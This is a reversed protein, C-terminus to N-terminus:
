FLEKKLEHLKLINDEVTEKDYVMENIKQTAKEVFVKAAEEDIRTLKIRSETKMTELLTFKEDDSSKILTQLLEKDAENLEAYKENFKEIAIEIVEENVPEVDVSELLVKKPTRVHELVIVLAEHLKDIDKKEHTELTENVLSDLAEYLKIRDDSPLVAEGIFPKLKEREADIEEITYIEFLNIQKDIYDKAQVESEIHKGEISNFIRFELQLYPSNKVVDLFNSTVVKSEEILAGKFYAEKLKTSVLLNVIGINFNKM